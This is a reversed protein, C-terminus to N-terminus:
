ARFPRTIAKIYEAVVARGYNERDEEDSWAYHMELHEEALEDLERIAKRLSANEARLASIVEEQEKAKDIMFTGM